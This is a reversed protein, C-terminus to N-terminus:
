WDQLASRSATWWDIESGHVDDEVIHQHVNKSGYLRHDQHPSQHVDDSKKIAEKGEISGWEGDWETRWEHQWNWLNKIDKRTITPAHLKGSASSLEVV